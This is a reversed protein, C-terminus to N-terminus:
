SGRAEFAAALIEDASAGEPAREVARRVLREADARTEGLRVLAALAQEMSANAATARVVVRGGGAEGNLSVFPDVKGTLEAVITEALRKGIEPLEQLAKVDREMILHAIEGTPRAMARLAKKTGVGKVTTFVEFFRRDLPTDFGLLRPVFSTGQSGSELWELTHLTVVEGIRTTMEPALSAPILVERAVGTGDIGPLFVIAKSGEVAELLGRIRALM